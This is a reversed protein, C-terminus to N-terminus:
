GGIQSMSRSARQFASGENIKHKLEKHSVADVLIDALAADSAGARLPARLDWEEISFLCTRIQGDATLRIRNCTGCFPQSVPNIFGIEGVGDPFTYVRSTSSPETPVRVLPMFEREIIAKIEDGALVRERQWNGDADLPMFEIFRILYPKRRALEAFAVVETETFDRMAVVNVKIPAISPYRELEALGALVEDLGHRRAIQHFRDHQLTDLSVNIRKLGADALPKAMKQLLFGNTTLSLSRLPLVSLRAVLEPLGPRLTPEGGTLRIEEIGLDVAIRAVREIEDFSLISERKLWQMGEEPM